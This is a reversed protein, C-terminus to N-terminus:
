LNSVPLLLERLASRAKAFVPPLPDGNELWVELMQRALRQCIEVCEVPSRGEAVLGPVDPSTALYVGERFRRIRLRIAVEDARALREHRKPSM